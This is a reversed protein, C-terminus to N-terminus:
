TLDMGMPRPSPLPCAAHVVGSLSCYGRFTMVCFERVQIRKLARLQPSLFRRAWIGTRKSFSGVTGTRSPRGTDGGQHTSVHLKKPPVGWAFVFFLPYGGGFHLPGTHFM